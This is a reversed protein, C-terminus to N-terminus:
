SIWRDALPFLKNCRSLLGSLHTPQHWYHLRKSLLVSRIGVLAKLAELSRTPAAWRVCPKARKRMKWLITLKHLGVLQSSRRQRRCWRSRCWKSSLIGHTNCFIGRRNTSICWSNMMACLHQAADNDFNMSIIWHSMSLLILCQHLYCFDQSSRLTVNAIYKSIWHSHLLMSVSQIYILLHILQFDQVYQQIWYFEMNSNIPVSWLITIKFDNSHLFRLVVNCNVSTQKHSEYVLYETGGYWM